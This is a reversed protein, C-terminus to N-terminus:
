LIELPKLTEKSVEHLNVRGQLLITVTSTGDFHVSIM